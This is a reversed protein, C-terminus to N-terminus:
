VGTEDEGSQIRNFVEDYESGDLEVDNGDEDLVDYLTLGVAADNTMHGVVTIDQNGRRLTITQVRVGHFIEVTGTDEGLKVHFWATEAESDGPLVPEISRVVTAPVAGSSTNLPDAGEVDIWLIVDDDLLDIEEETTIRQGPRYLDDFSTPKAM